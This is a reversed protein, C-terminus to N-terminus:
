ASSNWGIWSLSIQSAARIPMPRQGPRNPRDSRSSLVALPRRPRSISVWVPQIGRQNDTPVGRGLCAAVDM